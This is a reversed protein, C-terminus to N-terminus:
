QMLAAQIDTFPQTSEVAGGQAFDVRLATLRQVIADSEVSEAITQIGAIHGINNIAEVIACDMRDELMNLVFGGDIKVFDVVLSKVCSFPCM